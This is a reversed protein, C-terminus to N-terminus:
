WKIKLAPYLAENLVYIADQYKSIIALMKRMDYELNYIYMPEEDRLRIGFFGYYFLYEIIKPVDALEIGHNLIFTEIEARKYEVKEFLFDYLLGEGKPYIDRLENDADALVDNSYAEFGKELDREEIRAHRLNVATGRAYTFLKLLNRPRMLSRQLMFESSEQGRILPACVSSWVDSFTTSGKMGKQVLRLRLIERLLDPDSWDLSVTMEKGFDPSLKVLYQYIDNRIFVISHFEHGDGQMERQIKRGADILSRLITVDANSIGASTWGKDLNDFLIWVADKFGIYESVIERLEKLENTRLLATIDPNTLKGDSAAGYQGKYRKVILDSLVRLRESFDGGAGTPSLANYKANLKRYIEFLRSDRLHRDADKELIKYSIELFLLYEWFAVILHSKAGESLYDFIEERLKILQYGESKLDVVINNKHQRIRDRVQAFLATKGTGKRGRVVNAEGRLTRTYQDTKLYYKGLTPFENEAIPDGMSLDALFNKEITVDLPKEDRREYVAYAFDNIIEDIDSNTRFYKTIDRVDLFIPGTIPEIVAVEKEMGVALGAVFAARINHISSDREELGVIPVVVGFSNAVQEIAFSAALRPDESPSFSRYRLRSKKIRAILRMMPDTRAPTDLLFVPALYNPRPQIKLPTLDISGALIDTLQASNEYSVYGLTDFIGIKNVETVNSTIGKNHVLYARKNIGIAYGIEFAVNFNLRSVDAFLIDVDDLHAFIPDVLPRGAVDNREWPQISHNPARAVVAACAAKICDGIVAPEAPYAFFGKM